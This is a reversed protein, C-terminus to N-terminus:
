NEFFVAYTDSFHTLLLVAYKGEFPTGDVPTRCIVYGIEEDEADDVGYVGCVDKGEGTMLYVMALGNWQTVARKEGDEIWIRIFEHGDPTGDVRIKGDIKEYVANYEEPQAESSILQARLFCGEALNVSRGDFGIYVTSDGGDVRLATIADSAVAATAVGDANVFETIGDVTKTMGYGGSALSFGPKKQLTGTAEGTENESPTSGCACLSVLLSLLILLAFTRKQFIKKM